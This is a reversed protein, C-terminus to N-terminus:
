GIWDGLVFSFGFPGTGVRVSSAPDGTDPAETAVPLENGDTRPAPTAIPTAATTATGTLAPTPTPGQAAVPRASALLLVAISTLFLLATSRNM